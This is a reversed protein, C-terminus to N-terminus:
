KKNKGKAKQFKNAKGVLAFITKKSENCLIYYSLPYKYAGLYYIIIIPRTYKYSSKQFM